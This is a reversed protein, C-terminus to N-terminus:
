RYKAILAHIDDINAEILAYVEDAWAQVEHPSVFNTGMFNSDFEAILAENAFIEAFMNRLFELRYEPVEPPTNLLLNFSGAELVTEFLSEIEPTITLGMEFITPVDPLRDIRERDAVFLPVLNGEEFENYAALLQWTLDTEQQMVALRRGALGVYGTILRGSGGNAELIEALIMDMLSGASFGPVSAAITVNEGVIDAAVEFTNGPFTVYIRPDNGADGVWNFNRVDFAVGESGGLQAMFMASAQQLSLTLGDRSARNYMYNAAVVGGAGEHYEIMVTAGTYEEIFPILMRAALDVVGGAPQGLIITMRQGRFFEAAPDVEPEDGNEDGNEPPDEQQTPPAQQAAPQCATAVLAFVMLLCLVIFLSKKM